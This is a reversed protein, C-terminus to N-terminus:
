VRAPRAFRLARETAQILDMLDVPKRLTTYVGKAALREELDAEASGSVVVVPVEAGTERLHDILAFGDMRPMLLDTIVLDYAHQAMKEIAALGNEAEHVVRRPEGLVEVLLKRILPEDDVVLISQM